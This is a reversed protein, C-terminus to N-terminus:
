AQADEFSIGSISALLDIRIPPEGFATVTDPMKLHTRNLVVPPAGFAVLAGLLRSVNEPTRYYFFDIDATARVHGYMGIVYGGVLLYEVGHENM